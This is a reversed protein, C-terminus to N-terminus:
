DQLKMFALKAAEHEKHKSQVVINVHIHDLDGREQREKVEDRIVAATEYDEAAIANKMRTALEFVHMHRIHKQAPM